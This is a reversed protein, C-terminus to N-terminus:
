LSVREQGHAGVGNGCDCLGFTQTTSAQQANRDANSNHAVSIFFSAGSESEDTSKARPHNSRPPEFL